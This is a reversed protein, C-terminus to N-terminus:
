PPLRPDGGVDGGDGRDSFSGMGAVQSSLLGIFWRM